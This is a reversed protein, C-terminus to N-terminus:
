AATEEMRPTRRYESREEDFTATLWDALEELAFTSQNTLVAQLKTLHQILEDMQSRFEDFAKTTANERLENTADHAVDVAQMATHIYENILDWDTM